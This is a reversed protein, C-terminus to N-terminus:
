SDEADVAEMQIGAGALSSLLKSVTEAHEKDSSSFAVGYGELVLRAIAAADKAARADVPDIGAEMAALEADTDSDLTRQFAGRITDPVLGELRADADGDLMHSEDGVPQWHVAVPRDGDAKAQEDVHYALTQMRYTGDRRADNIILCDTIVGTACAGDEHCAKQMEGQKWPEGTAPNEMQRTLHADMAVVVRDANMAPVVFWVANLAEDRDVNPTFITLLPEDDRWVEVIGNMDDHGREAARQAADEKMLRFRQLEEDTMTSM